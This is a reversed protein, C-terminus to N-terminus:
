LHSCFCSCLENVTKPVSPDINAVRVTALGGKMGKKESPTLDKVTERNLKLKGVKVRGKKTGANKGKTVM